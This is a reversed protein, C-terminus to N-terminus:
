FRLKFNSLYDIQAQFLLWRTKTSSLLSTAWFEITSAEV